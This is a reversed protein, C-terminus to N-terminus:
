DIRRTPLPPARPAAGRQLQRALSMGARGGGPASGGLVRTRALIRPRGGGAAGRASGDRVDRLDLQVLVDVSRDRRRARPGEHLTVAECGDRRPFRHRAEERELRLFLAREERVEVLE